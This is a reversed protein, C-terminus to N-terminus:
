NTDNKQLPYVDKSQAGKRQFDPTAGSEHFSLRTSDPLAYLSFTKINNERVVADSDTRTAYTGSVLAGTIPIAEHLLTRSSTRDAETLSKFFTNAM